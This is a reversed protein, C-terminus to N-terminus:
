APREVSRVRVEIVRYEDETLCALRLHLTEVTVDLCRAADVPSMPHLAIACAVECIDGLLRTAALRDADREFRRGFWGGVDDHGLDVHALEHALVARRQARDLTKDLLIVRESPM